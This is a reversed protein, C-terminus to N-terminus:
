NKEEQYRMETAIREEEERKLREAILETNDTELDEATIIEQDVHSFYGLSYIDNEIVFRGDEILRIRDPNDIGYKDIAVQLVRQYLETLSEKTLRM